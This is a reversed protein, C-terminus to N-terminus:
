KLRVYRLIFFGFFLAFPVLIAWFPDIVQRKGLILAADLILYLSVLGFVSGAYIFFVPLQRTYKICFPIPAIVAWLCLWPMVMKYYFVSTIQSQKESPPEIQAPIKEKLESISLEEAATLTELLSASNFQLSPFLEFPASYNPVLAGKEDRHFHDVFYGMPVEAYPYLYKIRQVDNLNPIWYVDFFRMKSADYDQFLLISEDELIFHQVSPQERNKVKQHSRKEDIHKITNLAKPIIWETNVYVILVCILGLFVFPRLLFKLRLGSAMLAVLENHINLGTVTKITAIMLAFPALVDLRKAFDCAYYLAIEDWSFRIKHHHFSAAHSSFDILVYLGYFCFLFLLFVKVLETLFYREWILQFPFPNYNLRVYMSYQMKAM